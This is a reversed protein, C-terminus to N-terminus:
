LFRAREHPAPLRCAARRGFWRTRRKAIVDYVRDRLGRPVLTLALALGAWPAGLARLIRLVAESRHAVRDDHVLLVSEAYDAPLGHRELLARGAASQLAAFRFTGARDRALIFDVWHNCLGCLGDFLVM